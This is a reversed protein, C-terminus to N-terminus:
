SRHKLNSTSYYVNVKSRTWFVDVKRVIKRVADPYVADSENSGCSGIYKDKFIPCSSTHGNYRYYAITSDRPRLGNTSM